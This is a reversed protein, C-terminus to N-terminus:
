KQIRAPEGPICVIPRKGRNLIEHRGVGEKAGKTWAHGNDTAKAFARRRAMVSARVNAM